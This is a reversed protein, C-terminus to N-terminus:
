RLTSMVLPGPEVVFGMLKMTARVYASYHEQPDLPMADYVGRLEFGMHGSLAAFAALAIPTAPSTASQEGVTAAPFGSRAPDLQGAEIAATCVGVLLEISRGRTAVLREPLPNIIRPSVLLEFEPLHAKYWTRMAMAIFYWATAHDGAPARDRAQAMAIGVAEYADASLLGLLENHDSVHRYLGSPTMDVAKAVARMTVGGPGHLRLEERGADLIEAMTREHRRARRAAGVLEESKGTSM